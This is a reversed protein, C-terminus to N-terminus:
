NRKSDLSLKNLIGTINKLHWILSIITKLKINNETIPFFRIYPSWRETLRKIGM